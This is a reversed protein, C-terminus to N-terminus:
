DLPVTWRQRELTFLASIPLAIPDPGQIYSILEAFACQALRRSQVIRCDYRVKNNLVGQNGQNYDDTQITMRGKPDVSYTGEATYPFAAGIAQGQLVLTYEVRVQGNGDFHFVGVETFGFNEVPGTFPPPASSFTGSGSFVFNGQMSKNNFFQAEARPAAGVLLLLLVIGICPTSQLYARM